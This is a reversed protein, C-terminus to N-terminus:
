GGSGPATAAVATSSKAACADGRPYSVPQPPLSAAVTSGSRAFAISHPDKYVQVWESSKSMVDALPTGTDFLVVDAGSERIISDWNPQVSEVDGYDYLLADGMLAADGFVYVRDGHASLTYALYGGEGYQNFIRLPQPDASLWRAACVPFDKTYAVSRETTAMAPLLRSSLYFVGIVSVATAYTIVRMPLPPAPREQTTRRRLRAKVFIDAQEIWIPTAAAVFLAIHRVSQLALATTVLLLAADRARMRRNIVALAALSLLMLEFPRVQWDHFDPSHWEAILSQQAPSGQTQFAYLLIGPGNPNIMAVAACALLVLALTKVRSAAAGEPMRLRAGVLEAVVIVALFGLGIIFGSHLNSWVLFLPVLLWVARGGSRLHRDVMLLVVCSLAFTLMQARPGWIPYGAVIALLLGVGLVVMGPNRLRARQLICVVGLWTVVSLVLVILALGGVQNLLAFLVETLWEHMTWAHNSVTYTFPDTPILAHTQVIIQGTRLHWWFDPDRIVGTVPLLAVAMVASVFLAGPTTLRDLRSRLTRAGAHQEAM